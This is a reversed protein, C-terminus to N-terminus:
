EVEGGEDGVGGWGWRGVVAFRLGLCYHYGGLAEVEAHAVEVRFDVFVRFYESRLTEKRPLLLVFPHLVRPHGEAGADMLAAPVHLLLSARVLVGGGGHATHQMSHAAHQKHAVTTSLYSGRPM